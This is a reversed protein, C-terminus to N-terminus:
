TDPCLRSPMFLPLADTRARVESKGPANNSFVRSATGSKSSQCSNSLRSITVKSEHKGSAGIALVKQAYCTEVTNAADPLVKNRCPAGVEEPALAPSWLPEAIRFYLHKHASSFRNCRMLAIVGPPRVSHTKEQFDSMAGVTVGGLRLLYHESPM